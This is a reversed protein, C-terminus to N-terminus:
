RPRALWKATTSTALRLTPEYTRTPCRAQPRRQVAVLTQQEHHVTERVINGNDIRLGVLHLARDRHAAHRMRDHDVISRALQREGMRRYVSPSGDIRNEIEKRRATATQAPASNWAAPRQRCRANRRARATSPHVSRRAAFRKRVRDRGNPRGTAPASTAIRSARKTPLARFTSNLSSRKSPASALSSSAWM